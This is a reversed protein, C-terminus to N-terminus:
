LHVAVALLAAPVLAAELAELETVETAGAVEMVM